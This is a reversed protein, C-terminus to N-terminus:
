SNVVPDQPALMVAYIAWSQDRDGLNSMFQVHYYANGDFVRDGFQAGIPKSLLLVHTVALGRRDLEDLRRARYTLIAAPVNMAITQWQRIVEGNPGAGAIARQLSIQRRCLLPLSM